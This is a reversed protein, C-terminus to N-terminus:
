KIVESCITLISCALVVEETITFTFLGSIYTIILTLRSRLKEFRCTTVSRHQLAAQFQMVVKVLFHDIYSPKEDKLTSKRFLGRIGTIKVPTAKHINM